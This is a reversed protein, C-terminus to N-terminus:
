RCLKFPRIYNGDTLPKGHEGSLGDTKRINNAAGNSRNKLRNFSEQLRNSLNKLKSLNRTADKASVKIKIGVEGAM